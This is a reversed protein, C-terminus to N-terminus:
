TLFQKIDRCLEDTNSKMKELEELQESTWQFGFASLEFRKNLLNNKITRVEELHEYMSELEKIYSNFIEDSVYENGM